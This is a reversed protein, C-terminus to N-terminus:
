ARADGEGLELAAAILDVTGTVLIRYNIILWIYFLAGVLTTYLAVSMGNILTTVMASVNEAKGATAPDVGSLAVIFGIVTGILGLFILSDAIHRVVLISDTLKLRLAEARIGRSESTNSRAQSLYRGAPSQPNCTGAEIDNLERGHRWIKVACVVLGYLFVLFILGSLESLHAHLMGDLWGQLYAAVAFATTLMNILAFRAFLLYRYQM